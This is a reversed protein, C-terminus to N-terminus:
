SENEVGTGDNHIPLNAKDIGCRICSEREGTGPGSIWRWQHDGKQCGNNLAARQENYLLEWAADEKLHLGQEICDAVVESDHLRLWKVIAAREDVRGEAHAAVYDNAWTM